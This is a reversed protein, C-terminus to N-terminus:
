CGRQLRYAPPFLRVPLTCPPSVPGDHNGHRGRKKWQSVEGGTVFRAEDRKEIIVNGDSHRDEGKVRIIEGNVIANAALNNCNKKSFPLGTTQIGSCVPRSKAFHCVSPLPSPPTNKVSASALLSLWGSSVRGEQGGSYPVVMVMHRAALCGGWSAGHM